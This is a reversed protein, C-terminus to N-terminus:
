ICASWGCDRMAEGQGAEAIPRASTMGRRRPVCWVAYPRVLAEVPDRISASRSFIASLTSRLLNLHRTATRGVCAERMVMDAGVGAGVLGTRSCRLEAAVGAM